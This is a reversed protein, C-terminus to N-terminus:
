EARGAAAEAVRSLGALGILNEHLEFWVTHYSDILPAALWRHEGATIRGLADTFRRPYDSLLPAIGALRAVLELFNAHLDSLRRIITNDYDADTHDNPREGDILQWDTVLQKFRSNYSDFEHYAASLATQDTGARVAAFLTELRQRGELTLKVRGKVEELLGAGLMPRLASELTDRALDLTESLDEIRPRGKLRTTQLIRIEDNM